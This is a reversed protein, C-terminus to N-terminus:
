LTLVVIHYFSCLLVHNLSAFSAFCYLLHQKTLKVDSLRRLIRTIAFLLARSTENLKRGRNLWYGRSKLLFRFLADAYALM